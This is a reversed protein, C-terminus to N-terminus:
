VNEWSALEVLKADPVVSPADIVCTHGHQSWAVTTRGASHAVRYTEAGERLDRGAPAGGVPEGGVISYGLTAGKPNRYFVTTVDRGSVSDIRRGTARWDFRARWDPFALGEVAADLRAPGAGPVTAPAPDTATLRGIAAVRVVSPGGPGSDGAGLALVVTVVVAALMCGAALLGRPRFGLRRRPSPREAGAAAIWQRDLSERLSAPALSQPDAMAAAVLEGGREARALEDATELIDDGHDM